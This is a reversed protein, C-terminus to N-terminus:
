TTGAPTPTCASTRRGRIRATSTGSPARGALPTGEIAYLEALKALDFGLQGEAKLKGTGAATSQVLPSAAATTPTTPTVEDAKAPTRVAEVRPAADSKVDDKCGITMALALAM